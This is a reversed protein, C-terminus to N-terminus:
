YVELGSQIDVEGEVDFPFGVVPITLQFQFSAHLIGAGADYVDISSSGTGGSPPNYHFTEGSDTTPFMREWTVYDWIAIGQLGPDAGGLDLHGDVEFRSGPNRSFAVIHLRSMSQGNFIPGEDYAAAAIRWTRPSGGFDATITGSVFAYERGVGLLDAQDDIDRAFRLLKKASSKWSRRRYKSEDNPYRLLSLKRRAWFAAPLDRFEGDSLTGAHLRERRADLRYWFSTMGSEVANQMDVDHRYARWLAGVAVVEVALDDQMSTSPLALAERARVLARKARREAATGPDPLADDYAIVTEELGDLFPSYHDAQASSAFALVGIAAVGLCTGTGL